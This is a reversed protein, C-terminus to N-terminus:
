QRQSCVACASAAASSLFLSRLAGAFASSFLLIRSALAFFATAALLGFGRTAALLAAISAAAALLRFRGLLPEETLNCFLFLLPYKPAKKRQFIGPCDM